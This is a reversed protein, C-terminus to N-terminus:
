EGAEGSKALSEDRAGVLLRGSQILRPVDIVIVLDRTVAKTFGDEGQGDSLSTEIESADITRFGLLSSVSIALARTGSEVVAFLSAHGVRGKGRLETLDIVSLLDGRVSAVGLMFPPLGPLPTIPTAAVVARLDSSAIGFISSGAEVLVVDAWPNRRVDAGRLSLKRARAELIAAKADHTSM